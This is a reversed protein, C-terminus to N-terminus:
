GAVEFSALDTGDARRVHATAVGTRDDHEVVHTWGTRAFTTLGMTDTTAAEPAVATAGLARLAGDYLRHM